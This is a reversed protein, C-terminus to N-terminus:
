RSVKKRKKRRTPRSGDPSRSTSRPRDHHHHPVPDLRGRVCPRLEEPQGLRARLHVHDADDVPPEPRGPRYQDFLRPEDFIQLGGITSTIVVFIITPRLMPVHRLLVPPRADAGDLVAAEYLDRPIAQMAALLILTNYGTWRFDVMTAIAIHSPFVQAHWGIPDIGINGLVTNIIGSKDAFLKGFILGVAVPAVVYPLLVGM